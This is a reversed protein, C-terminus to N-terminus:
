PQLALIGRDTALAAVAHDYRGLPLSPLVFSRYIVGLATVTYSRLFRDYYGGGYGIRRGHRDYVIAPVLCLTAPAFSFVPAEASPELIGYKGPSLESLSSIFHFSMEGKGFCRPFALKKGQQLAIECIPLIDVEEGKPAYALLTSAYRFAASHLVRDAIAQALAKKEEERLAKRKEKFYTRLRDKEAKINM